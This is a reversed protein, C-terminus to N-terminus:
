FKIGLQGNVGRVSHYGVGVFVNGPPRVQLGGSIAVDDEADSYLGVGVYPSLLPFSVFKLVDVGTAGDERGGLEVGFDFWRVGLSYSVDSDEVGVAGWGQPTLQSAAAQPFSIVGMTALTLTATVSFSDLKM